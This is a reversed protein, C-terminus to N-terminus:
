EEELVTVYRNLKSKIVSAFMKYDTNFLSIDRYKYINNTM